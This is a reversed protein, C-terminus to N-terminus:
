QFAFIGIMDLSEELLNELFVISVQILVVYWNRTGLVQYGTGM